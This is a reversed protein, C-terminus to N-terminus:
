TSSRTGGRGTVSASRPTSGTRMWRLQRRRATRHFAGTRMCTSPRRRATMRHGATRTSGNSRAWRSRHPSFSEIAGPPPAGDDRFEVGRTAVELSYNAARQAQAREVTERDGNVPRVGRTAMGAQWGAYQGLDNEDLAAGIAAWHHFLWSNRVGGPYCSEAYVDWGSFRPAVARIAPHRTAHLYEAVMGDYSIGPDTRPLHACGALSAALLAIAGILGSLSSATHPM